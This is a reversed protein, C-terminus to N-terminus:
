GKVFPFNYKKQESEISLIYYGNNLNQVEIQNNQIQGTDLLKGSVDFIRYTNNSNNIGEVELYNTVPNPYVNISPLYSNQTSVSTGTAVNDICFYAPTNMGFDGNDSSSLSFQLSDIKGLDILDIYQWDNVIYDQSNDEFRFDALYFNVSDTSLVGDFWKRITLLFFDPDDGTVGGFAKAFDDGDRMSLAAYTSNTIYLGNVVDTSNTLVLSTPSYAITVAYSTSGEVGSGAIASFQNGFGPTQIDTTSSIAWGTWSFWETNYDNKLFINDSYFGGSLDSGDLYSDDQDLVDEFGAIQASIYFTCILLLITFISKM